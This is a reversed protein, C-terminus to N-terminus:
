CSRICNTYAMNIKELKTESTTLPLTASIDLLSLINHAHNDSFKEKASQRSDVKYKQFVDCVLSSLREIGFKSRLLLILCSKGCKEM